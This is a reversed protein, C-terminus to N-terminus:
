AAHSTTASHQGHPPEKRPSMAGALLIVLIGMVPVIALGVRLSSADAIAGVLPPSLLFALRLLWSLITLGTGTRLGPLEDAAHMAGPILTAVGFGAFGFGAITGWVSPVALALGMGVAVLLGGWRAVARQGWHDVMRDGLIRGIFQFGQMSVFGLAALTAGASLEDRLYSASWTSAADEAWAAAIAIMSLAALLGWTRGPVNRLPSPQSGESATVPAAAEVDDHAIAHPMGAEDAGEDGAHRPEPGKLLMPYAFANVAVVLVAVIGFQLPVSIGVGAAIGGILGGSVAGISWLAHFSNLISRKYRRQVRLGHSNQAVDVWADTAGVIFLAVGFWLPSGALGAALMALTSLVMGVTAVRSSRFRRILAAAGLGLLLSGVPWAAMAVGLGGYSLELSDRIEPIRPAFGGLVIGNTFFILAVGLRARKLEPAVTRPTSM